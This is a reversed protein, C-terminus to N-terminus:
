DQEDSDIKSFLGEEVKEHIEDICRQIKNRISDDGIVLANAIEDDLTEIMKKSFEEEFDGEKLSIKAEDIAKAAESIRDIAHKLSATPDGERDEGGEDNGEEDDSDFDDFDFDDFDDFDFDDGESIRRVAEDFTIKSNM